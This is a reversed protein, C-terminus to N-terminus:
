YNEVDDIEECACETFNCECDDTWYICNENKCYM